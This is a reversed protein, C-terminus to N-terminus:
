VIFNFFPNGTNVIKKEKWDWKRKFRSEISNEVKKVESATAKTIDGVTDGNIKFPSKFYEQKGGLGENTTYGWYCELGSKACIYTVAKSDTWTVRYIVGDQLGSKLMIKASVNKTRKNLEDQTTEVREAMESVEQRQAAKKGENRKEEVIKKVVKENIIYRLENELIADIMDDSLLRGDQTTIGCRSFRRKALNIATKEDFEDNPHCVAWGFNFTKVRGRDPSKMIMPKGTLKVPNGNRDCSVPVMAVGPTRKTETLEGYILVKHLNGDLDKHIDFKKYVKTRM